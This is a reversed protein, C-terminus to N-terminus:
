FPLPEDIRRPAGQPVIQVVIVELDVDGENALLHVCGADEVFASGALYTHRVFDDCDDYFTATGSRVAIISPGPHSHWGGHGGPEIRLHTVYVDSLGWTKLRAKWDDAQAMTDSEGMTAPGVLNTAIFGQPPTARVTKIAFAGVAGAVFAAAVMLKWPIRSRAASGVTKFLSM